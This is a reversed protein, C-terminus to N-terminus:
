HPKEYRQLRTTSPRWLGCYQLIEDIAEAQTPEIFAIVMMAGECGRCAPPDIEYVAKMLVAWTQSACRPAPASRLSM